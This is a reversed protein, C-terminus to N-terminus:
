GLRVPPPAPASPLPEVADNPVYACEEQFFLGVFGNLRPALPYGAFEEGEFVTTIVEPRDGDKVPHAILEAPRSIRYRENGPRPEWRRSRYTGQVKLILDRVFTLCFLADDYDLRAHSQRYIYYTEAGTISVAPSIDDFRRYDNYSVGQAVLDLKEHVAEFHKVLEETVGRALSAVEYSADFRLDIKRERLADDGQSWHRQFLRLAIATSTVCGSFEGNLLQQEAKEVWNRARRYSILSTLSLADFDLQLFTRCAQNFFDAVDQRFKRVDSERPELGVHKFNVRSKNLQNLSTRHSLMGKGQRDIDDLLQNFATTEKVPAHLHEAIVRLVMEAADQLGLVAMGAAYPKAQRLVDTSTGFLYKACVLRDVLPQNVM